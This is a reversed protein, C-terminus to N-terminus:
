EANGVVNIDTFGPVGRTRCPWFGNYSGQGTPSTSAALVFISTLTRRTRCRLVRFLARLSLHEDVFPKCLESRARQPVRDDRQSRTRQKDSLRAIGKQVFFVENPVFIATRPHKLPRFDGNEIEDRIPSKCFRLDPRQAIKSERFIPRSASSFCGLNAIKTGFPGM